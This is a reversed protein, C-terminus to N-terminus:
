GGRFLRLGGDVKLVAGTIYDAADSSLFAAARGIDEITGLRGWPLNASEAQIQEETAYKREGPTDIWGPEIVNSRIRYEALEVAITAAMHNMGAKAANYALSTAVPMTSHISSIFLLSGGQGRQVMRRATAQAAHFAGWLTVDLTRRMGDVSMELFPERQSYAANCVLIDIGGFQQVAAAVMRDVAARDSVDAQLVLARRGQGRVADAVAEAEQPHSRYNVAIDAGSRAMELACGRGIGLSSGTILATKGVLDPTSLISGGKEFGDKPRHGAAGSTAAGRSYEPGAAQIM